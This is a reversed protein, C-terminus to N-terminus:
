AADLAAMEAGVSLADRGSAGALWAALYGAVFADGDGDTPAASTVSVAEPAGLLYSVAGGSGLRVIAIGCSRALARALAAPDSEDTALMAKAQDVTAFLADTARVRELLDPGCGDAADVSTTLGREAASGLAQLAADDSLASGCLHLHVAQRASSLAADVDDTGLGASAGRDILVTGNLRLVSGTHQAPDRRVSCAVGRVELEALRIDGTDDDGVVGCLTVGAGTAALWGATTFGDGGGGLTISATGAGEPVAVIETSVDGIVIIETM